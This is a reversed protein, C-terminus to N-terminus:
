NVTIQCDCTPLDLRAAPVAGDDSAAVTVGVSTAGRALAEFQVVSVPQRAALTALVNPVPELHLRGEGREIAAYGGRALRSDTYDLEEISRPRLVRADYTVDLAVGGPVGALGSAALDAASGAAVVHPMAFALHVRAANAAEGGGAQM